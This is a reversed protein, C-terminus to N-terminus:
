SAMLQVFLIFILLVHHYIYDCSMVFVRNLVGSSPGFDVLVVKAGIQECTLEILRRFCGLVAVSTERNTHALSLAREFQVINTSGPLLFLNNRFGEGPLPELAQAQLQNINGSFVPLLAHYLSPASTDNRLQLEDHPQVDSLTDAQIQVKDDGEGWTLFSDIDDEAEEECDDDDSKMENTVSEDDTNEEDVRPKFFSTLNCQPDADVMLTKKGRRALTAAIQIM